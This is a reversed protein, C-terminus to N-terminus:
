SINIMFFIQPVYIMTLQEKDVNKFKGSLVAKQEPSYAM